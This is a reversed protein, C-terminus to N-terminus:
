SPHSGDARRHVQEEEDAEGATGCASARVNQGSRFEPLLDFTRSTDGHFGGIHSTVDVNVIDGEHLIEDASPIGHCVVENRSTCVAAPFGHYGLQSPAAGRAWTDAAVLTHIDGTSM